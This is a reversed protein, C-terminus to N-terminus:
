NVYCRDVDDHSVLGLEEITARESMAVDDVYDAIEVMEDLLKDRQEITLAISESSGVLVTFLRGSPLNCFTRLRLQMIFSDFDISPMSIKLTDVKITQLTMVDLVQCSSELLVEDIDTSSYLDLGISEYYGVFDDVLWAPCTVFMAVQDSTFWLRKWLCCSSGDM